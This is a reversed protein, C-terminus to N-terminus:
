APDDAPPGFAWCHGLEEFLERHFDQSVEWLRRYWEELAAVSEGDSVVVNMETPHAEGGLTLNSSGVIALGPANPHGAPYDLLTLKAHIRGATYLRVKLVGQAVLRALTLLLSQNEVTRPLADLTNRLNLATVAAARDHSERLTAAVDERPRVQDEGGRMRNAAEERVQEETLRNVVNGILIEVTELRELATGLPALGDLFLYGVALHAGTAGDDLCERVRLALRQRRNDIILNVPPFLIGFNRTLKCSFYRAFFQFRRM